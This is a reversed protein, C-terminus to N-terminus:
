AALCDAIITDENLAPKEVKRREKCDLYEQSGLELFKEKINGTFENVLLVVIILLSIVCLTNRNKNLFKTTKKMMKNLTKNLM